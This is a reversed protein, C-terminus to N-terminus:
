TQPPIEEGPVLGRDRCWRCSDALRRGRVLHNCDFGIGGHELCDRCEHPTRHGSIRAVHDQIRDYKQETSHGDWQARPDDPEVHEVHAFLETDRPAIHWSMQWGGVLVYLLQWGREDVDPAPTIVANAPHLAALWALLHARERYAQDREAEAPHPEAPAALVSRWQEFQKPEIDASGDYYAVPGDYTDRMPSFTDLVEALVAALRDREAKLEHAKRIWTEREAALRRLRPGTDPTTRVPDASTTPSDTETDPTSDPSDMQSDPSTDPLPAWVIRTTGGHGHVQEAHDISDWTVTSPRPGRWRISVTGDPWQVGDAVRGTGSIGSLDRERQLHFVRVATREDAARDRTAADEPAGSPSHPQQSAVPGPQQAPQGLLALATAVGRPDAGVQEADEAASDLWGALTEGVGPHMAEIYPLDAREAPHDTGSRDAVIMGDASRVVREDTMKWPAPSARHAAKANRRLISAAQRLLAAPSTNTM